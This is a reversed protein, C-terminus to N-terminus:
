VFGAPCALVLVRTSTKLHRSMDCSRVMKYCPSSTLSLHRKEGPCGGSQGRAWWEQKLSKSNSPVCASSLLTENQGSVTVRPM